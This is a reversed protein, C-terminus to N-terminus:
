NSPRFPLYLHLHFSLILSSKLSIPHYTTSQIWRAWLYPGTTPEQSCLLLGVSEM